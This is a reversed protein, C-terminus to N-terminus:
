PTKEPSTTRPAWTLTSGDCRDPYPGKFRVFISGDPQYRVIVGSLIIGTMLHYTVTRGLDAPELEKGEIRPWEDPDPKFM